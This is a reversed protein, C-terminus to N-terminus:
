EEEQKIREVQVEKPNVKAGDAVKQLGEYVIMEGPKLGERVLYFNDIAPGLTIQREDIKNDQDVIFVRKRGQLDSVSRQPILIGDKVDEVRAKVKAFQGPRIIKNPNPFSVQVLIAGTAPDIQRDLFNPTGKHPYVYGDALILQIDAEREEASVVDNGVKAIHRAIGLYQVETLFFEVLVSETNSVTNLIVPNPERGVFDGVKAETKGIIGNIPSYIRTYGMQIEAARLNAKAAEVSAQAAQYSAIAGDLDSQSIANQEALPRYRDLDRKAKVLSTNSEALLGKKSAVEAEFPQSEIIYLLDGANVPSGERFHIGKLFGEVRARIAIDKAGYTQGVFIKYIPVDEARLKYVSVEPPPPAQAPAKEAKECASGILFLVIVLFVVIIKPKM